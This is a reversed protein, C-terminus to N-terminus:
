FMESVVPSVAARLRTYGTPSLHHGNEEFLQPIPQGNGDLFEVSADVFEVRNNNDAVERIMKDAKQMKAWYEMNAPFPIMSIYVVRSARNSIVIQQLFDEFSKAVEEPTAGLLIDNEGANLVIVEAQFPDLLRRYYHIIERITAEGFGRNKVPMGAFDNSLNSWERVAVGGLFVVAGTPVGKYQSERDFNVIEEEYRDLELNNINTNKCGGLLTAVLLIMYLNAIKRVDKKRALYM